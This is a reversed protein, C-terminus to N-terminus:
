SALQCASHKRCPRSCELDHFFNEVMQTDDGKPCPYLLVSPMADAGILAEAEERAAVAVRENKRENFLDYLSVVAWVAGAVISGVLAIYIAFFTDLSVVGVLGAIANMDNGRKQQVVNDVFIQRCVDNCLDM